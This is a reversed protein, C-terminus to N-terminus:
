ICIRKNAKRKYTEVIEIDTYKNQKLMTKLCLVARHNTNCEQSIHALIIAEPKKKSHSLVKELFDTCQNNSLHGTKQIRKKLWPPRSSNELMEPDHNSEIIIVDSDIFRSLIEDGPFGLDTAISIKKDSSQGSYFINFGFCGGSSDHPVEFSQVTFSGVSFRENHFTRLLSGNQSTRLCFYKRKLVSGVKKHCYLPVNEKILRRLMTEKVHDTHTHTLLTGSLSHLGLRNQELNKLTYRPGFGCDILISDKHNWIVTCNGSSTSGLVQINIKM